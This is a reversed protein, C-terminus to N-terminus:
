PKPAPTRLTADSSRRTYCPLASQLPARPLPMRCASLMRSGRTRALLTRAIHTLPQATLTVWYCPKQTCTHTQSAFSTCVMGCLQVPLHQESRSKGPGGAPIGGKLGEEGFQDYIRRKEPDSLVDYAESVEKFKETAAEVNNPNQPLPACPAPAPTTLSPNPLQASSPSAPGLPIRLLSRRCATSYYRSYSRM